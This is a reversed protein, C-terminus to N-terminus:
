QKSCNRDDKQLARPNSEQNVAGPPLIEPTFSILHFHSVPDFQEPAKAHAPTVRRLTFIELM